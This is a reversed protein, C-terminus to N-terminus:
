QPLNMKRLLAQFRPEARLSDLVPNIGLYMVNPDREACAKELWDLARARDGAMAYNVGVDYATGPKDGYKALEVANAQRWAEAYGSEAYGKKIADALEPRGVEVYYTAQATIVDAYRQKMHQSSLVAGLAVANGPQARLVQDAQALAEDYRRAFLLALAYFSRPYTDLPEIAVAREAQQIAEDPRGLIILVQAYNPLDAEYPNLEIARRFEREAGPLDFDVLLHVSGLAAHAPASTDDLEVAKLAAAKARPGADGVPAGYLQQRSLWVGAMGAHARAASPDRALAQEFYRAAMEIDGSYQAKLILDHV